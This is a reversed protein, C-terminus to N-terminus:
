LFVSRADSWTMVLVTLDSGTSNEPSNDRKSELCMKGLKQDSFKLREDSIVGGWREYARVAATNSEFVKLWLKVPRDTCGCSVRGNMDHTKTTQKQQSSVQDNATEIATCHKQEFVKVSSNADNHCYKGNNTICGLSIRHMLCLRQVLTKFLLFGLGKGTGVVHMNDLYFGKKVDIMSEDVDMHVFGLMQGFTDRAAITLQTPSRYKDAWMDNMMVEVGGNYLFDHPLIDRYTSKWSATHLNACASQDVKDAMYLIVQERLADPQASNETGSPMEVPNLITVRSNTTLDIKSNSRTGMRIDLIAVRSNPFANCFREDSHTYEPPPETDCWLERVLLNERRLAFFFDADFFEYRNLTHAYLVTAGAACFAALVKPLMEVGDSNYLLDSGFVLSGEGCAQVLESDLPKTWDLTATVIADTRPLLHAHKSVNDQLYALAGGCAQETLTISEINPLNLTLAIGLWGTGSGLELLRENGRDLDCIEQQSGIFDFLKIAAEWTHGGTTELTKNTEIRVQDSSWSRHSATM